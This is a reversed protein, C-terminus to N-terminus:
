DGQEVCLDPTGFMSPILPEDGCIAEHKLGLDSFFGGGNASVPHRPDNRSGEGRFLKELGYIPMGFRTKWPRAHGWFYRNIDRGLISESLHTLERMASINNLAIEPTSRTAAKQESPM